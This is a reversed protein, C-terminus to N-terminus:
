RLLRPSSILHKLFIIKRIPIRHPHLHQHIKADGVHPTDEGGVHQPALNNDRKALRVQAYPFFLALNRIFASTLLRQWSVRGKLILIM